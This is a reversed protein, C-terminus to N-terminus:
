VAFANCVLKLMHCVDLIVHVKRSPDAPHPFFPSMEQADMTAGLARIMSINCTPGDCTLSITRVGIDHLQHLCDKIVNAREEGTMGDILFYGVLIKWSENIAVAMLVMAEKAVPMSDDVTGSGVDVYVQFKGEAFEFHKRIAMENVMLACVMEKGEQKRDQARKYHYFPMNQLALIQM